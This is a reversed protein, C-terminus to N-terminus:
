GHVAPLPPFEDDYAGQKKQKGARKGRARRKGNPRPAQVLDERPQHGNSWAKFDKHALINGNATINRLLQGFKRYVGNRVDFIPQKHSGERGDTGGHRQHETWARYNGVSIMAQQARSNAICQLGDEAVFGIEDAKVPNNRVMSFIVIEGGGGRIDSISMCPVVANQSNVGNDFLTQRILHCQAKYPSLVIFDSHNLDRGPLQRQPTSKYALARQILQAVVDAEFWNTFSADLQDSMIPEGEDDHGSVDIVLRRRGNYRAFGFSDRLFLQLRDWVQSPMSTSAHNQILTNGDNDKYWISLSDSLHPHMRYQTKLKIIFSDVLRPEVTWQFLSQLLIDAWENRGNSVLVPRQQPYDGALTWHEIHEKFAGVPTAGDPISCTALEDSLLVKPRYWERLMGQASSSNTCFIIDVVHQLFYSTLRDEAEGLQIKLDRATENSLDRGGRSSHMHAKLSNFTQAIDRMVHAGSGAWEDIKNQRQVYFGYRTHPEARDVPDLGDGLTRDDGLLSGKYRVVVLNSDDLTGHNTGTLFHSMLTDVAIHTQACALVPRRKEGGLRNGVRIHAHAIAAATWSKGTGPPGCIATVGSPSETASRLAEVQDNNLSFSNAAGVVMTRLDDTMQRALSDTEVISSPTRLILLSIDVGKTRQVGAEIEKITAQHRDTPTPDNKLEVKVILKVSGDVLEVYPELSPGQVIATVEAGDGFIDGVVVGEFLVPEVSVWGERPNAFESAKVLIELKTDTEVRLSDLNLLRSDPVRLDVVYLGPRGPHQQFTGIVDFEDTRFGSQLIQTHFQRNREIALRLQLSMIAASAYVVTKRTVPYSQVRHSKSPGIATGNDDTEVLWDVVLNRPPELKSLKTDSAFVSQFPQQNNLQLQYHWMEGYKATLHLSKAIWSKLVWASETNESDWRRFIRWDKSRRFLSVMREFAGYPGEQADRNSDIASLERLSLGRWSVPCPQPGTQFVPAKSPNQWLELHVQMLSDRSAFDDLEPVGDVDARIGGDRGFRMSCHVMLNGNDDYLRKMAALPVCCTAERKPVVGRATTLRIRLGPNQSSMQWEYYVTPEVFSGVCCPEGINAEMDKFVAIASAEKDGRIFGDGVKFGVSKSAPPDRHDYHKSIVATEEGYELGEEQFEGGMVQTYENVDIVKHTVFYSEDDQQEDNVAESGSDSGDDRGEAVERRAEFPNRLVAAM